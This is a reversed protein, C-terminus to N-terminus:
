QAQIEILEVATRVLSRFPCGLKVTRIISVPVENSNFSNYISLVPGNGVGWTKCGQLYKGAEIFM